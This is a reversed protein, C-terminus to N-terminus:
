IVDWKMTHPSHPTDMDCFPCTGPCCTEQGYLLYLTCLPGLSEPDLALTTKKWPIESM